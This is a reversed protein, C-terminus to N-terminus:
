CRRSCTGWRTGTGPSCAWRPKLVPMLTVATLVKLTSAPGFKGHPDKAALVQGTGADAVAWSSAPVYPVRPAAPSPYNVVIGHSAM